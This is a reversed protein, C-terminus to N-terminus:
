QEDRIQTLDSTNKIWEQDLLALGRAPKRHGTWLVADMALCLAVFPTDFEDISGTMKVAEQWIPEGLLEINILEIKKFVMRKLFSLDQESYGSIKLLKQHHHDLEDLLFTPSFFNFLGSSNLLIDSITGKPSLLASFVINTDVVVNM